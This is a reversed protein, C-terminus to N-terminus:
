QEELRARLRECLAVVAKQHEGDFDEGDATFSASVSHGGAHAEVQMSGDGSRWPADLFGGVARLWGLAQQYTM